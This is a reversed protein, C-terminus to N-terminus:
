GEAMGTRLYMARMRGSLDVAFALTRRGEM